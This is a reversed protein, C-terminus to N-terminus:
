ATMRRVLISRIQRPGNTASTKSHDTLEMLNQRWKRATMRSTSSMLIISWPQVSRRSEAHARAPCGGSEEEALEVPASAVSLRERGRETESIPPSRSGRGKGRNVSAVVVRFAHPLPSARLFHRRAM